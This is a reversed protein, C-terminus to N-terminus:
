SRSNIWTKDKLEWKRSPHTINKHKEKLCFALLSHLKTLESNCKKWFEVVGYKSDFLSPKFLAPFFNLSLLLSSLLSPSREIFPIARATDRVGKFYYDGSNNDGSPCPPQLKGLIDSRVALLTSHAFSRKSDYHPMCDNM